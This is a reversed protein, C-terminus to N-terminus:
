RMKPRLFQAAALEDREFAAFASPFRRMLPTQNLRDRLGADLNDARALGTVCCASVLNSAEQDVAWGLSPVRYALRQQHDRRPAAM